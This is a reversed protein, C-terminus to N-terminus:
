VGQEVSLSSSPCYLIWFYFGGTCIEPALNKSLSTVLTILQFMKASGRSLVCLKLREARVPHGHPNFILHAVSPVFNTNQNDVRQKRAPATNLEAAESSKIVRDWQGDAKPWWILILLKTITETSLACSFLSTFFNWVFPVKGRGKWDRRHRQIPSWLKLTKSM